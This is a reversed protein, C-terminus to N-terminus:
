AARRARRLAQGFARAFSAKDDSSLFAGIEVNDEGHRLHVATTRENEDRILVLRVDRPAFRALSREQGPGRLSLEIQEPWVTIQQIIRDRRAQRMSLAVLAAAAIAFAVAGPLLFDPVAILF